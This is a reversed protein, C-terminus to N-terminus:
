ITVQLWFASLTIKNQIIELVLPQQQVCSVLYTYYRRKNKRLDIPKRM